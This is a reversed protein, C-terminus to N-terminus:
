LESTKELLDIKKLDRKTAITNIIKSLAKRIRSISKAAIKYDCNLLTIPRWNKLLDVPKNNKPILTTM